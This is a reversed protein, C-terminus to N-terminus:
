KIYEFDEERRRLWRVFSQLVDRQAADLEQAQLVELESNVQHLGRKEKGQFDYIATSQQAQWVKKQLPYIYQKLDHETMPDGARWLMRIAQQRLNPNQIATV